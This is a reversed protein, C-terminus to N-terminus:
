ETTWQQMKECEANKRKTFNCSFDKECDSHKKPKEKFHEPIVRLCPNLHLDRDTYNFPDRVKGRKEPPVDLFENWDREIEIKRKM